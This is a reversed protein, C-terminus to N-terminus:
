PAAVVAQAAEHRDELGGLRPKPGPRDLRM